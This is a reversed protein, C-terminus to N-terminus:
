TMLKLKLWVCAHIHSLAILHPVSVLSLLIHTRRPTRDEGVTVHVVNALTPVHSM